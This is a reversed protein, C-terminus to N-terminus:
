YYKLEFKGLKIVDGSDLEIKQNENLLIDNLYTGNTSGLDCISIINNENVISAHMRSVSTDKLVLDVCTSVKGITIPFYNLPYIIEKNSEIYILRHTSDDTTHNTESLLTTKGFIVSDNHNDFVENHTIDDINTYSNMQSSISPIPEEEFLDSANLKTKDKKKKFLNLFFSTKINKKEPFINPEFLDELSSKSTIQPTENHNTQTGSHEPTDLDSYFNTDNINTNTKIISEISQITFSDTRILKFLNYAPIVANNDQHDVRDLIFEALTTFEKQFTSKLSPILILGIDYTEVNMYIFSPNLTICNEDLMYEHASTFANVIGNLIKILQSVNITKNEFFRKIPQMSSIEYCYYLFGDNIKKSFRLFGNIINEELMTIQYDNNDENNEKIILFNHDLGRKYSIEFDTLFSEDSNYTNSIM